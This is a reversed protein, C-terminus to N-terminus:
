KTGENTVSPLNPSYPCSYSRFRHVSLVVVNTFLVSVIRLCMLRFVHRGQLPSVSYVLPLVAANLNDETPFYFDINNTKTRIILTKHCTKSAKVEEFFSVM